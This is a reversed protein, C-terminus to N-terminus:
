RNWALRLGLGVFLAGIGRKLWATWVGSLRVRRSALGTFLALAHCWLMGNFDFVLGLVIF